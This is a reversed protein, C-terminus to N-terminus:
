KGWVPPSVLHDFILGLLDMPLMSVACYYYDTGGGGGRGCGRGTQHGITFSVFGRLAWENYGALKASAIPTNWEEGAGAAGAAGAGAGAGAGAAGAAGAAANNNNMM